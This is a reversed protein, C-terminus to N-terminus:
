ASGLHPEKTKVLTASDPSSNLNGLTQNRPLGCSNILYNRNDKEAYM